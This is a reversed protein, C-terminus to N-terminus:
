FCCQRRPFSDLDQHEFNFTELVAVRIKIIKTEKQLIKLSWESSIFKNRPEMKGKCAELYSLTLVNVMPSTLHDWFASFHTKNVLSRHSKFNKIKTGLIIEKQGFHKGGIQKRQFNCNSFTLYTYHNSMFKMKTSKTCVAHDTLPNPSWRRSVLINKNHLHTLAIVRDYDCM